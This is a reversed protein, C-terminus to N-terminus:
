RVRRLAPALEAMSSAESHRIFVLIKPLLHGQNDKCDGFSVHEAHDELMAQVKGKTAERAQELKQPTYLKFEPPWTFFLVVKRKDQERRM